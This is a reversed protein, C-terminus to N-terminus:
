KILDEFAKKDRNMSAVAMLIFRTLAANFEMNNLDGEGIELAYQQTGRGGDRVYEPYNEEKSWHKTLSGKWKLLLVPYNGEAFWKNHDYEPLFRFCINSKDNPNQRNSYQVYCYTRKPSKKFSKHSEFRNESTGEIFVINNDSLIHRVNEVLVDCLERKNV